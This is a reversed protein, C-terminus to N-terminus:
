LFNQWLLYFQESVISTREGPLVQLTHHSESLSPHTQHQTLVSHLTRCCKASMILNQWFQALRYVLQVRLKGGCLWLCFSHLSFIFSFSLRALIGPTLRGGGGETRKIGRNEGQALVSWREEAWRKEVVEKIERRGGWRKGRQFVFGKYDEPDRGPRLPLASVRAFSESFFLRHFFHTLTVHCRQVFINHLWSHYFSM